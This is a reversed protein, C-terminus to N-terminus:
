ISIDIEYNVTGQQPINCVVTGCLLLISTHLSCAQLLVLKYGQELM